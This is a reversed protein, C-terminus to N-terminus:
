SGIETAISSTGPLESDACANSKQRIRKVSASAGGGPVPAPAAM